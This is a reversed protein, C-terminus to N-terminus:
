GTFYYYYNIIILLLLCESRIFAPSIIERYFSDYGLGGCGCRLGGRM